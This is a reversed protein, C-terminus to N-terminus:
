FLKTGSVGPIDRIVEGEIYEGEGPLDLLESFKESVVTKKMAARKITGGGALYENIAQNLEERSIEQNSNKKAM